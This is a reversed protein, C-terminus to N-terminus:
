NVVSVIKSYTKGGDKDVQAIRIFYKGGPNENSIDARKSCSIFVIFLVVSAMLLQKKYRHAVPLLLMLLAIGVGSFTALAGLDAEWSYQLSSSSNGKEAKSAITAIKTFNIGDQSAEIEFRDSNTETLTQWDVILAGNKIVANINGFGVPLPSNSTKVFFGSFGRIDFTVEWRTSNVNWTINADAPNITEITGTYTHPLGSGDSSVGSRKEILLNAKGAADAASTPLKVTNVANFDTFEQQTFYLTVTGGYDNPQDAPAIEYHRKVFQANQTNEIWVKATVTNRIPNSGNQMITCVNHLCDSFYHTVPQQTKTVSIAVDSLAASNANASSEYAGMDVTTNQIRANGDLDTTIGGPIYSNNGADIAPSGCQLRLNGNAADTFLPDTNLNGDIGTAGGQVISYSVTTSSGSSESTSGGTNGWIISNRVQPKATSGSNCIGGGFNGSNGAFSCNTIVPASNVYNNMGGGSYAQNNAFSCNSITPSSYGENYIGGGYWGYNGTFSCNAITPSSSFNYIGGGSIPGINNGNVYVGLFSQVNANGGKITFGDLVATGVGGSAIVVHYANEDNSTISLTSGSGTVVDNGNFDGSLITINTLWNRAALTNEGGAFGGYIKVDAKLVFANYRDGITITGTANAKRNPLYTGAAVWIEDGASSANIMAQLDNSATGWSTGVGATTGAKSVYRVTAASNTVFLVSFLVYLFSRYLILTEKPNYYRM